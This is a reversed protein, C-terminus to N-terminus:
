RSASPRRLRESFWGDTLVDLVIEAETRALEASELEETSSKPDNARLSARQWAFLTEVVKSTLKAADGERDARLREVSIEDHEFILRDLHWILRAEFLWGIGGSSSYHYPDDLTPALNLADSTSHSGRLWV